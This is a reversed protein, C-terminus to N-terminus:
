SFASITSKNQEIIMQLGQQIRISTKLKLNNYKKLQTQYIVLDM